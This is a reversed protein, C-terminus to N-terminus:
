RKPTEARPEDRNAARAKESLENVDVGPAVLKEVNERYTVV